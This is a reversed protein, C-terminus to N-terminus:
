EIGYKGPAIVANPDLATKISRCADRFSPMLLKMHKEQYDTPARGVGVGRKAFEETLEHYCADARANEDDNEKNWVLVHLGRAFRASAVHMVIFDMGHREYISRALRNLDQAASGLMPTGPTFWSNGGGPRWDLLGLEGGYPRGSFAEIAIKYPPIKEADEHAVYKAKTGNTFHAQVRDMMPKIAAANPGFFAGSANWAGVGHEARLKKRAEVSVAKQTGVVYEPNKDETAILYLDNALRVLTPVFNSMKLPRILDIIQPLDDDDPFAFHFTQIMPPRPMLWIAARTVIGFNSQAFLGDLIPGFSYKSVHFNLLSESNLSGDGTRLIQGNGLVVEMGCLMGFHDFYPGYGGGKDMANGLVGGLPPGSTPSIMFKDGLRKLEDYLAQFTVGPEVVAYGLTENVELIKNMRRGLDVLCYGARVPARSGIGINNGTSIPFLAVKHRNAAQVIATVDNTTAPFVVGSPPRNRSPLTNEGFRAITSPSLDVADGGIASAVEEYFAQYSSQM